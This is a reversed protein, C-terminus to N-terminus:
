RNNQETRSGHGSTVGDHGSARKSNEESVTPLRLRFTAGRPANSEAWLRGGHADIIARSTSLGLGMGHPKTTYFADFLREADHHDFGRGQDAVSIEVFGPERLACQMEVRRQAAPTEALSEFANSLLNLVVQQIQIRDALIRPLGEALHMEVPVDRNRSDARALDLVERLLDGLDIEARQSEAKRVLRRLGRIIEGARM